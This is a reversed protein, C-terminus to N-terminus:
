KTTFLVPLYVIKASELEKPIHEILLKINTKKKKEDDNQKSTVKAPPESTDRSSHKRKSSENRKVKENCFKKYCSNCKQLEPDDTYYSASDHPRHCRRCVRYCKEECKSCYPKNNALKNRTNCYNCPKQSSKPPKDYKEFEGAKAPQKETYQEYETDSHDSFDSM